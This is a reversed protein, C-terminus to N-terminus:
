RLTVPRAFDTADNAALAARVTSPVAAREGVRQALDGVLDADPHDGVHVAVDLGHGVQEVVLDDDVVVAVHAPLGRALAPEAVGAPVQQDAEVGRARSWGAYSSSRPRWACTWIRVTSCCAHASNSCSM